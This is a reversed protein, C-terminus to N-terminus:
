SYPELAAVVQDARISATGTRAAAEGLLNDQTFQNPPRALMIDIWLARSVDQRIASITAFHVYDGTTLLFVFDGISDIMHPVFWAPLLKLARIHMPESM